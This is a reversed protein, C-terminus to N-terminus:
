ATSKVNEMEELLHRTKTKYKEWQGWTELEPGSLFCSVPLTVGNPSIRSRKHWPLSSCGLWVGARIGVGRPFPSSPLRLAGASLFSQMVRCYAQSGRIVRSCIGHSRNKYPTTQNYKVMLIQCLTHTQTKGWTNSLKNPAFDSPFVLKHRCLFVTGLQSLIILSQKLLKDSQFMGTGKVKWGM